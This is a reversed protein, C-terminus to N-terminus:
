GKIEDVLQATLHAPSTQDQGLLEQIEQREALTLTNIEALIKEVAPSM